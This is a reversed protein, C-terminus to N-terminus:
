GFAARPMVPSSSTDGTATVALDPDSALSGGPFSTGAIGYTIARLNGSVDRFAVRPAVQAAWQGPTVAFNAVFNRPASLTLTQPSATGTLDGAFGTFTYGARPTVTLQVNLGSSYYGDDGQPATAVYGGWPPSVTGQLRYKTTFQATYTAPSNPALITTLWPSGDSWSQFIHMM